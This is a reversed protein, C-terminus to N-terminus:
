NILVSGDATFYTIRGNSYFRVIRGSAEDAEEESIAYGLPRGAKLETEWAQDIGRSRDFGGVKKIAAKTKGGDWQRKLIGDDFDSQVLMDVEPEVSAPGYGGIQYPGVDEDEMRVRVGGRWLEVHCHGGSSYGRGPQPQALDGGSLAVIQGQTVREGDAVAYERIHGYLARTGDDHDIILTNGTQGSPPTGAYGVYITAVTGDAMSVIPTEPEAVIDYAYFGPSAGSHSFGGDSGQVVAGPLCQMFAHWDAPPTPAPLPPAPEPPATCDMVENAVAAIAASYGTDAAWVGDMQDLREKGLPTDFGFGLGTLVGWPDRGDGFYDNILALQAQVGAEITGHPHDPTRGFIIDPTEDAYIGIGAANHANRWRSSTFGATEVWGQALALNADYNITQAGSAYAAIIAQAEAPNRAVLAPLWHADLPRYGRPDADRGYCGGPPPEPEPEPEPPPTVPTSVQSLQWIMRWAEPGVDFCAFDPSADTVFIAAGQVGAAAAESSWQALQGNRVDWDMQSADSYAGSPSVVGVETVAVPTNGAVSLAYTYAGGSLHWRMGNPDNLQWYCHCTVREGLACYAPTLARTNEALLAPMAIQIGPYRVRLADVYRPAWRFWEALDWAVLVDFGDAYEPENGPIFFLARVHPAIAQWQPVVYAVSRAYGTPDEGIYPTRLRVSHEARPVTLADQPLHNGGLWVAVAVPAADFTEISRATHGRPSGHLGFLLTM